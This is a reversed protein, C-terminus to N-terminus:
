NISQAVITFTTEGGDTTGLNGLTTGDWTAGDGNDSTISSFGDADSGFHTFTMIGESSTTTFTFQGSTATVNDTNGSFNFNIGSSIDGSYNIIVKHSVRIGGGPPGGDSFVNGSGTAASNPVWSGHGSTADGRRHVGIGNIFVTSSGGSAPDGCTTKDGIRIAKAGNVLVNSSGGTYNTQHFPSPTPSAHGKHRDLGSRVIGPM